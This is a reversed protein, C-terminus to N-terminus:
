ESLLLEEHDCFAEMLPKSGATSLVSNQMEVDKSSSFGLSIDYASLEVHVGGGGAVGISDQQQECHAATGATSSRRLHVAGEVDEGIANMKLVEDIGLLTYTRQESFELLLMLEDDDESSTTAGSFAAATASFAAAAATTTMQMTPMATALDHMQHPVLFGAQLMANLIDVAQLESAAMQTSVVVYHVFEFGTATAYPMAKVLQEHLAKLSASQQLMRKREASSVAAGGFQHPQVSVLREEQYGASIKRRALRSTYAAATDGATADAASSAAATATGHQHRLSLASSGSGHGDRHLGAGSGIRGLMRGGSSGCPSAAAQNGFHHASQTGSLKTTLDLQLAQLDSGLDANIDASKLYSLVFKSCYTCVKLDDSCNIIKGPVVQNCCKSCFIQGCLRCHHKRRFTTFKLQCEYCEKSKADPMWFRQLETDKYSTLTDRKM